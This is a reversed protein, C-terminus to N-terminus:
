TRGGAILVLLAFLEATEGIAGSVDGTFTIRYDRGGQRVTLTAMASGLIHGADTFRLAVTASLAAERGYPVAVCQQM